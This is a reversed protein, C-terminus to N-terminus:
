AKTIYHLAYELENKILDIGACIFSKGKVYAVFAKFEELDADFEELHKQYKELREKYAYKKLEQDIKEWTIGHSESYINTHVTFLLDKYGGPFRKSINLTMSYKEKYIYPSYGKAEVADLFTKNVKKRHKFKELIERVDSELQVGLKMVEIKNILDQKSQKVM